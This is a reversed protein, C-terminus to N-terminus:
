VVTETLDEIVGHGNRRTTGLESYQYMMADYGDYGSRRNFMSGDRDMFKFDHERYLKIDGESLFLMKGRPADFDQIVPIEGDPTTFALGTFGGTFEKTNVFSRQQALLQWYSQWVGPSTFIASPKAGNKKIKTYFAMMLGESVARATGGNANKVGKWIPVTTPNINYLTGSDSVISQLGTWENQYNGTRVLFDGAAWAVSASITFTGAGTQVNVENIASIRLNSSKVVGASSLVDVQMGEQLYQTNSVTGTTSAGISGSFTALRGTGDGWVQRNMDIALDDKLGDRELDMADLFAEPNSNALEFTQGTMGMAGYLYKLGVRGAETGQQGATPLLENEKRAGLGQNRTTHIAFVAYKGGVDNSVGKSTREIRRLTPVEQRLQKNLGGEYREKLINTVSQLSAPM